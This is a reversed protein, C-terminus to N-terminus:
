ALPSSNGITAIGSSLPQAKMWVKPEHNAGHGWKGRSWTAFCFGHRFMAQAPQGEPCDFLIFAAPFRDPEEVHCGRSGPIVQNERRSQRRVGLGLRRRHLKEPLTEVPLGAAAQSAQRLCPR